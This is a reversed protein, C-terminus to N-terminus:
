AAQIYLTSSINHRDDTHITCLRSFSPCCNDTRREDSPSDSSDRSFRIDAAPVSSVIRPESSTDARTSSPSSASRSHPMHVPSSSDVHSPPPLIQRAQCAPSPAICTSPVISLPNHPICRQAQRLCHTFKASHPWQDRRRYTFTRDHCGRLSLPPWTDAEQRFVPHNPVFQYRLRDHSFRLFFFTRYFSRM